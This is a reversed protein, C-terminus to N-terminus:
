SDMCFHNTFAVGKVQSKSDIHGRQLSIASKRDIKAQLAEATVGLSFLEMLVLLFDVVSKWINGLNVDYTTWLGGFPPEFHLTASIQVIVQSLESVTFYQRGTGTKWKQGFSACGTARDRRYSLM